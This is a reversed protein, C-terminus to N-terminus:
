EIYKPIIIPQSNPCDSKKYPTIPQMDFSLYFRVEKLYSVGSIKVCDLDFKLNSYKQNIINRLNDGTISIKDGKSSSIVDSILSDLKYDIYLNLATRFFPEYGETHSKNTYCYGHKNYEHEWFQVDGGTYSTWYLKMSSELNKDQIKVPIAKGTNCDPLM